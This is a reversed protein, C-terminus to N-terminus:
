FDSRGRRATRSPTEGEENSGDPYGLDQESEESERRRGRGVRGVVKEKDKRTGDGGQM